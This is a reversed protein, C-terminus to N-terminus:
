DQGLAAIRAALGDLLDYESVLVSEAGLAEMVRQAVVTGALIVPARRPELSPIEETESITLAALEGVLADVDDRTLTTGHVVDPDYRGLGLRMAALSTFTGAVGIVEKSRIRIPPESLVRDVEAAAAALQAVSAPRDPLSRDTLRVSGIDYSHSWTVDVEGEVVETSGGGIDVVVQRGIRGAGTTAGSFSLMAEDEGDIISPPSGLVAAISRMVEPGNRADRAASTAVAAFRTVGDDVMVDAFRALVTLSSAVAEDSLVGSADVGRALGTVESERRIVSGDADVVMLRISNSGIDLAGIVSVETREVVSERDV